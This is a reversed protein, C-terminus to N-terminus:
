ADGGEGTAAGVRDLSATSAANFNIECCENDRFVVGSTDRSKRAAHSNCNAV